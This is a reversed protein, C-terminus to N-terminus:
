AMQGNSMRRPSASPAKSRNQHHRPQADTCFVLVRRGDKDVTYSGGQGSFEDDYIPVEDGKHDTV